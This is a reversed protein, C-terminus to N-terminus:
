NWSSSRDYNRRLKCGLHIPNRSKTQIDGTHLYRENLQTTDGFVIRVQSAESVEEEGRHTVWDLLSLWHDRVRSSADNFDFLIQSAWSFSSGRWAQNM